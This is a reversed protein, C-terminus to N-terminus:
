GLFRAMQHTRLFHRMERYALLELRRLAEVKASIAPQEYQRKVESLSEAYTVYRDVDAEAQMGELLSKGVLGGASILGMIGTWELPSLHLFLTGSMFTVWAIAMVALSAIFGGDAVFRLLKARLPASYIDSGLNRQAYAYQIGIRLRELATFLLALQAKDARPPKADRFEPRLWLAADTSDEIVDRVLYRPDPTELGLDSLWTVRKRRLEALAQDDTMALSVLDLNSVLSQFHFQRLREACYRHGLWTRQARMVTWHLLGLLGGLSMLVLALFQMRPENPGALPAVALVMLGPGSIALGSVGQVRNKRKAKTAADNHRKFAARLEPWDLVRFAQPHAAKLDARSKATILLDDNPWGKLPDDFTGTHLATM